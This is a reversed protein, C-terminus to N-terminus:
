RRNRSAQTLQRFEVPTDPLVLPHLLDSQIIIQCFSQPLGVPELVTLNLTSPPTARSVSGAPACGKFSAISRSIESPMPARAIALVHFQKHQIRRALHEAASNVNPLICRLAHELHQIRKVPREDSARLLCAPSRRPSRDPSRRLRRAQPTQSKTIAVGFARNACGSIVMPTNGGSADVMKGYRTPGFTTSSSTNVPSGTVASRASSNPIILRSTGSVCNSAATFRFQHAPDGVMGPRHQRHRLFRNKLPIPIDRCSPKFCDVFIKKFSNYWNSSECSPNRPAPRSASASSSSDIPCKALVKTAFPVDSFSRHAAIKSANVVPLSSM